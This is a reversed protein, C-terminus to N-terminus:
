LQDPESQVPDARPTRRKGHNGFRCTIGGAEFDSWAGELQLNAVECPQLWALVRMRFAIVKALL